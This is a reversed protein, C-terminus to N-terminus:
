AIKQCLELMYVFVLLQTPNEEYCKQCKKLITLINMSKTWKRFGLGTMAFGLKELSLKAKKVQQCRQEVVPECVEEEVETCDQTYSTQCDQETM